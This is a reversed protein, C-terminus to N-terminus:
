NRIKTVDDDYTSVRSSSSQILFVCCFEAAAEDATTLGSFPDLFSATKKLYIQTVDCFILSLVITKFIWKIPLSKCVKNLVLNSRVSLLM